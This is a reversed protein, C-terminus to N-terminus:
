EVLLLCSMLAPKSRFRESMVASLTTWSNGATSEIIGISVENLPISSQSIAAVVSKSVLIFKTVLDIFPIMFILPLSTTRSSLGSNMFSALSSINLFLFIPLTDSMDTLPRILSLM